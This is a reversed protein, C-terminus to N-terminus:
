MVESTAGNVDVDLLKMQMEPFELVIKNMMRHLTEESDDMIIMTSGSGSIFMANADLEKHIQYIREYSPILTKRYPEHMFDVCAKRLIVANNIEMAKCLAACRGMQNVATEYSLSTPLIARADHTSIGQEPILALFKLDPHVGYRIMNPKDDTMFSVSLQGFLAPAINDPHGELKTCIAFLDYKNLRNQFLANAGMAGAVICAASSGLGRQLPIDCQIHIAIGPVDEHLAELTKCFAQYVLNDEHQYAEDCGTIILGHEIIDFDFIGIWSLALGLTDYGPGLNASTAPVQVRIM